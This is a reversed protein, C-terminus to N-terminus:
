WSADSWIVDTFSGWSFSCEESTIDMSLADKDNLFSMYNISLSLSFGLPSDDIHHHM